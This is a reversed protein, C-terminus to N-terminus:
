DVSNGKQNIEALLREINDSEDLGSDREFILEPTSRLELERSLYGRLFARSAAVRKFCEDAETESVGYISLGIKAYSLDQTTKVYTVTILGKVRPDKIEQTIAEALKRKIEENIRELRNERM